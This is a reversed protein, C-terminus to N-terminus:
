SSTILSSSGQLTVSTGSQFDTIQDIVSNSSSAAQFGINSQSNYPIEITIGNNTLVNQPNTLYSNWVQDGQVAFLNAISDYSFCSHETDSTPIYSVITGVLTIPANIPSQSNTTGTLVTGNSGNIRVQVLTTGIEIVTTLLETFPSYGDCTIARGSGDVKLIPYEKQGQIAFLHIFKDINIITDIPLNRGSPRDTVNKRTPLIFTRPPSPNVCPSKIYTIRKCVGKLIGEVCEVYLGEVMSKQQKEYAIYGGAATYCEAGGIIPDNYLTFSVYRGCAKEFFDEWITIGSTDAPVIQAAAFQQELRIIEVGVCSPLKSIWTGNITLPYRISTQGSISGILHSGDTWESTVECNFLDRTKM